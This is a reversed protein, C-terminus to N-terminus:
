RAVFRGFPASTTTDVHGAICLKPRAAGLSGEVNHAGAVGACPRLRTTLGVETMLDRCVQVVAAEDGSISPVAILKELFYESRQRDTM